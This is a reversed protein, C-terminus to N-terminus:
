FTEGEDDSAASNRRKEDYNSQIKDLNLALSKLNDGKQKLMNM